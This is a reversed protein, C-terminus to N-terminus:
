SKFAGGSNAIRAATLWAWEHSSGTELDTVVAFELNYGSIKARRGDLTVKADTLAIRDERTITSPFTNM